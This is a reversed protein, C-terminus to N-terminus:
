HAFLWYTGQEPVVLFRQNMENLTKQPDVDEFLQPHFQKAFFEVALLHWPSMYVHHWLAGVNGQQVAPLTAMIADSQLQHQLSVRATDHDVLPGLQLQSTSDLGGSGTVLYYDPNETLVQEQSLRGFVGNFKGVAINHGGAFAILDALNGRAVTTCCESKKGLHLQLMVKPRVPKAQALRERIVAMHQQYFQIFDATKKQQNLVEGLVQLSPVTNNLQDVRFDLYIIPIEAAEVQQIFVQEDPQTKAYVPMILLDPQLAIIKESSMQSFNDNGVIAINTMAPFAATYKQWTQPDLRKLDAPWGVVRAAPDGSEILALTYLMRSEGLVIRQPDDPIVVERGLSDTVIKASCFMPLCILLCWLLYRKM